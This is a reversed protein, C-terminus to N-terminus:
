APRGHELLWAVAVSACATVLTVLAARGFLQAAEVAPRSEACSRPHPVDSAAWGLGPCSAGACKFKPQLLDDHCCPCTGDTEDGVCKALCSPCQYYSPRPRNM